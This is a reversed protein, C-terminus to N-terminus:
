AACFLDGIGRSWCLTPMSSGDHCWHLGSIGAVRRPPRAEDVAECEVALSESIQLWYPLLASPRSDGLDGGGWTQGSLVELVWPDEAGGQWWSDLVRGRSSHV